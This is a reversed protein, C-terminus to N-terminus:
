GDALYKKYYYRSGAYHVFRAIISAIIAGIVGFTPILTLNGGVNIIAEAFAINRIEKGKSKVSLFSYPASLGQFFHALSLPVVYIAVDAYDSGFLFTVVIEAIFYLIVTCTTLWIFNVVFVQKPISKLSAMRKYISKSMVASMMSMPACIMNALTYFGLQSANVFYTIFLEDLKFTSQNTIAGTYYHWGYERNKAIIATWHENINQFIPKLVMLATILAIAM